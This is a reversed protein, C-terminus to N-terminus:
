IDLSCHLSEQIYSLRDLSLVDKVNIGTSDKWEDSDLKFSFEQEKPRKGPNIKLGISVLVKVGLVGGRM